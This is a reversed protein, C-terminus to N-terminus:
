YYTKACTSCFGGGVLKGGQTQKKVDPMIRVDASLQSLPILELVSEVLHSRWNLRTAGNRM